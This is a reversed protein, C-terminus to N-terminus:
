NANSVSRRLLAAVEEGSQAGDEHFGYGWYAGAFYFRQQGQIALRSRQAKMAAATFVPHAYHRRYLVRNSDICHDGNLTVFIPRDCSLSQLRNMWYTVIPRTKEYTAPQHKPVLYNWSAWARRQKPMISADTHLTMENNLYPFCQLIDVQSQHLGEPGQAIQLVEDAHNAFVVYDAELTTEALHVRVNTPHSTVRLVPTGVIWQARIRRRAADVYTRSGSTITRWQHRGGVSLLGHNRMFRAYAKMPFTLFQSPDASWIASGFPILFNEIFADSYGSLALHEEISEEKPSWDDGLRDANSWRAEHAVLRNAAAAFRKVDWLMRLHSPRMLTKRQAFVTNLNKGGYELGNSDNRVGFSMDTNQSPTGLTRLIRTFTPYNVDNYVIFGTDVAHTSGDLSVDVTHAHGGISQQAEIITLDCSQHLQLAAAIGSIGAGIIIVKM